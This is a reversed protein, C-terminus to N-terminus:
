EWAVHREFCVLFSLLSLRRTRANNWTPLSRVNSTFGHAERCIVSYSVEILVHVNRYQQQVFYCCKVVDSFISWILVHWKKTGQGYQFAFLLLFFYLVPILANSSFISYQSERVCNWTHMVIRIRTDSKRQLAGNNVRWRNVAFSFFSITPDWASFSPMKRHNLNKKLSIQAASYVTSTRYFEHSGRRKWSYHPSM